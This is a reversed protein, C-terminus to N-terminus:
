ILIKISTNGHDHMIQENLFYYNYITNQWGTLFYPSTIQPGLQGARM